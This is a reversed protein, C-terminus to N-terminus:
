PRQCFDHLTERLLGLDFDSTLIAEGQTYMFPYEKGATLSKHLWDIEDSQDTTNYYIYIDFLSIGTQNRQLSTRNILGGKRDLFFM